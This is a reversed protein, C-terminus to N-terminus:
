VKNILTQKIKNPIYKFIGWPLSVDRWLCISLWWDFKNSWSKDLSNIYKMCEPLESFDNIMEEHM